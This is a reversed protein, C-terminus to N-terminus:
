GTCYSPCFGTTKPLKYRHHPVTFISGGKSKVASCAEADSAGEPRYSELM